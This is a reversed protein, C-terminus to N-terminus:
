VPRGDIALDPLGVLPAEVPDGQAEAAPPAVVTLARPLTTIRVPTEGFPEGDVLIRQPPDTAIRVQPTSFSGINDRTAPEHDRGSRYLHVGTAIAEAISSAAVVTVDVRGDDGLLHSPGHALVTKLPAINAAVIAAARCQIVHSPTTLEVAFQEVTALKKLATAAYALVGWRRKATTSTEAITEAHLGVSCHLIMVRRDTASEVVAADLIRRSSAALQAIAGEIDGPIDLAAAFSNSTGLPLVGLEVDPRGIVHSACSSVTGDGGGAVIMRARQALADQVCAIPDRDDSTEFVTVERSTAAAIRETLTKADLGAASGARGNFIVAIDM